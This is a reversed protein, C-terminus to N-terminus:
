FFDYDPLSDWNGQISGNGLAINAFASIGVGSEPDGDGTSHLQVIGQPLIRVSDLNEQGGTSTTFGLPLGDALQDPTEGLDFEIPGESTMMCMDCAWGLRPTANPFTSRFRQIWNTKEDGPEDSPYLGEDLPSSEDMEESFGGERLGINCGIPQGNNQVVVPYITNRGFDRCDYQIRLAPLERDDSVIDSLDKTLVDSAGDWTQYELQDAAKM